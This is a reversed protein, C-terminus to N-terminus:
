NYIIHTIVNSSQGCGTNFSCKLPLFDLISDEIEEATKPMTEKKYTFLAAITTGFLRYNVTDTTDDHIIGLQTTVTTTAQEKTFTQDCRPCKNDPTLKKKMCSPIPCAQYTWTGGIEQITGTHELQIDDEM